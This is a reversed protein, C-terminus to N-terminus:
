RKRPPLCCCGAISTTIYNTALWAEQRRERWTQLQDALQFPDLPGDADALIERIILYGYERVLARMWPKMRDIHDMILVSDPDPTTPDNLSLSVMPRGNNMTASGVGQILCLAGGVISAITVAVAVAIAIAAVVSMGIVFMTAIILLVIM